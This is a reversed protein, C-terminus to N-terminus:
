PPLRSASVIERRARANSVSTRQWREPREDLGVAVLQEDVRAAQRAVLVGLVDQLVRQQARQPGIRPQAM